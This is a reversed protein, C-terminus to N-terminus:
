VTKQKRFQRNIFIALLHRLKNLKPKKFIVKLKLKILKSKELFHVLKDESPHRARPHIDGRSFSFLVSLIIHCTQGHAFNYWFVFNKITIFKTQKNKNNNSTRKTDHILFWQQILRLDCHKVEMNKELLITTKSRVTLNRIWNSNIKTYPTLYAELKISSKCTPIQNDWCRTNFSFVYENRM